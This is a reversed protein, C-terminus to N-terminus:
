PTGGGQRRNRRRRRVVLAGVGGAVLVVAIGVGIVVATDSSSAGVPAPAPTHQSTAAFADVSSSSPAPVLAAGVPAQRTLVVVALDPGVTGQVTAGPAYSRLAAAGLAPRYTTAVWGPASLQVRTTGTPLDDLGQLDSTVTAVSWLLVAWSGDPREVVLHDPADPGTSLHVPSAGASGSGVTPATPATAAGTLALLNRIAPYAPKPVGPATVIGFNDEEVALTPDAHDDLLEYVYTRAVGSTSFAPYLWSLYVAQTAASVPPQQSSGNVATQYGTETSMVPKTGSVAREGALEVSLRSLPQGGRPYAHVNGYDLYASLDGLQAADAINAVSPGIVPISRLAPDSTVGAYLQMQYARDQAAWTPGGRSDWENPGEIADLAPALGNDVIRQLELPVPTLTNSGGKTAGASGVVLDTTIGRAALAKVEDYFQGTPVRPLATRVHHVGLGVLLSEVKPFDGYATGSAGLHVNVGVDDGFAASTVAPVGSAGQPVAGAPPAGAVGLATLALTAVAALTAGARPSRPM